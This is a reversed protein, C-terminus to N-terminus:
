LVSLFYYSSTEFEPVVMVPKMLSEDIDMATRAREKFHKRNIELHSSSYFVAVNSVFKDM